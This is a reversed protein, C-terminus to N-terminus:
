INNWSKPIFLQLIKKKGKVAETSTGFIYIIEIKCLFFMFYQAFHMRTKARAPSLFIPLVLACLIFNTSFYIPFFGFFFCSLVTPCFDVEFVTMKSSQMDLSQENFYSLGVSVNGSVNIYKRLSLFSTSSFSKNSLVYSYIQQGANM